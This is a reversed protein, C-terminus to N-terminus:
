DPLRIGSLQQASLSKSLHLLPVRGLLTSCQMVIIIIIHHDGRRQLSQQLSPPTSIDYEFHLASTTARSAYCM